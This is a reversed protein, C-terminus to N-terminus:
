KWPHKKRALKKTLAIVLTYVLQASRWRPAEDCWCKATALSVLKELHFSLDELCLLLARSHMVNHWLNQQIWLLAGYRKFALQWTRLLFSSLNTLISQCPYGHRPHWSTSLMKDCVAKICIHWPQFNQRSGVRYHPALFDAPLGCKYSPSIPFFLLKSSNDISPMGM